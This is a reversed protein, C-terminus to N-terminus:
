NQLCIVLSVSQNIIENLVQLIQDSTSDQDTIIGDRTTFLGVAKVSVFILPMSYCTSM